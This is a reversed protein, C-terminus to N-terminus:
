DELYCFWVEYPSATGETWVLCIKGDQATHNSSLYTPTDYTHDRFATEEALWSSGDFRRLKIEGDKVYFVYLKDSSGAIIAPHSASTALTEPTGWSGDYKVYKLVSSSDIYAVHIVDGLNVGSFFGWGNQLGTAVEVASGWTTDYLFSQLKNASDKVLCMAKGAGMPLILCGGTTSTVAATGIHDYSWSDGDNNSYYSTVRSEFYSHWAVILKGTTLKTLSGGIHYVSHSLISKLAAWSIADDLDGRRFYTRYLEGVYGLTFAYVTDEDLFVDTGGARGYIYSWLTDESIWSRGNSSKKYIVDSGDWYFVRFLSGYFVKRQISYATALSSTSTGVQRPKVAPKGGRRKIRGKQLLSM